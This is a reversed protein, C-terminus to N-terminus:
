HNLIYISKNSKTGLTGSCLNCKSCTSKMGAEKSAPCNVIGDIKSESAIYSRYGKLRAVIEENIDHTSAMFFKSLDNRMWQHTYGTWNDAVISMEEIMKIPHLSPEGYTGFRVYTGQSMERAQLIMDYKFTPLSEFTGFEKAISKLMSIFGVYQNFKHTYCKGFENFPCDLCNTDANSFFTKMGDNTGNAILEYQKRSFTYTQVIKRKKDSEIKNNSTTSKSIVQLTDGIRFILKM